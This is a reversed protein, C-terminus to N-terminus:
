DQWFILARAGVERQAGRLKQHANASRPRRAHAASTAARAAPPGLPALQPILVAGSGYGGGRQRARGAPGSGYGGVSGRNRGSLSWVGWGWRAFTHFYQFGPLRKLHALLCDNLAMGDNHPAECWFSPGCRKLTKRNTRTQECRRLHSRWRVEM